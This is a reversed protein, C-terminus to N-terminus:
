NMIKQRPPSLSHLFTRDNDPAADIIRIDDYYVVGEEGYETAIAFVRSTDRSAPELNSVLLENDLWVNMTGGVYDISIKLTYWQGPTWTRGTSVVSKGRVYISRDSNELLVGNYIEGVDPQILVFFGLLAGTTQTPSIMVSCEYSLSEIDELTLVVGDTRPWVTGSLRFSNQGTHATPQIVYTCDEGAGEWIEYWGSYEPYVGPTYLEFDDAFLTTGNDVIVIVTDSVASRVDRDHGWAYISCEVNNRVPFTNWYCIFPESLVTQVLSDNVYYDARTIFDNNMISIQVPVVGQVSAGTEPSAIEIELPKDSCGLYIIFLFIGLRIRQLMKEHVSCTEKNWSM